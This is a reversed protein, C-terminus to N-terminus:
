NQENFSNGTFFTESILHSEPSPYKKSGIGLEIRNRSYYHNNEYEAESVATIYWNRTPAVGQVYAIKNGFRNYCFDEVFEFEYGGYESHEPIGEWITKIYTKKTTSGIGILDPRHFVCWFKTNNM